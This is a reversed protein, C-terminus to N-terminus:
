IDRSGKGRIAIPVKRSIFSGSPHRLGGIHGETCLLNGWFVNEQASVLSHYGLCIVVEPSDGRCVVIHRDEARITMEDISQHNDIRLIQQHIRLNNSNVPTPNIINPAESLPM